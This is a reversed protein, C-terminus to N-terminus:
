RPRAKFWCNLDTIVSNASTNSSLCILEAGPKEKEVKLDIMIGAQEFFRPTQEAIARAGSPAVAHDYACHDWRDLCAGHQATKPLRLTFISPCTFALCAHRPMSIPRIKPSRENERPTLLTQLKAM